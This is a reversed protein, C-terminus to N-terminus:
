IYDHNLYFNSSLRSMEYIHILVRGYSAYFYYKEETTAIENSNNELTPLLKRYKDNVTTLQRRMTAFGMPPFEKTYRHYEM